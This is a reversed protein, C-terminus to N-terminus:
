PHITALFSRENNSSKKVGPPPEFQIRHPYFYLETQQSKWLQQFWKMETRSPLLLVTREAELELARDVWPQILGKGYPPNCWIRHGAWEQILGNQKPTWFAPLKTNSPLACADVTFAHRVHLPNFVHPPTAWTNRDATM